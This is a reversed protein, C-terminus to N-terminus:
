KKKLKLIYGICDNNVRYPLLKDMSALFMLPYFSLVNLIHNSFFRRNMRWSIQGFSLGYLLINETCFGNDVLLGKLQEINYGVREHNFREKHEQNVKSVSTTSIVLTGGKKLMRFFGGILKRDDRVHELVESCIIKDFFTDPFNLRVADSEEFTINNIDLEKALRKAEKIKSVDIDVGYGKEIRKAITLLCLGMGCGADLIVDNETPNLLRLIEAARLRLGIHPIGLINLILRTIINNKIYNNIGDATSVSFNSVGSLVSGYAM